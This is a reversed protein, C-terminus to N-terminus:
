QEGFLIEFAEDDQHHLLNPAEAKVHTPEVDNKDSPLEAVLKSAMGNGGTGAYIPQYTSLVPVLTLEGELGCLQAFFYVRQLLRYIAVRGSHKFEAESCKGVEKLRKFVLPLCYASNAELVMEKETFELEEFDPGKAKLFRCLKGYLSDPRVKLRFHYDFWEVM